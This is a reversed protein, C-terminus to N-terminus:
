TSKPLNITKLHAILERHATTNMIYIKSNSYLFIEKLTKEKLEKSITPLALFQNLLDIYPTLNGDYGFPIELAKQFFYALTEHDDKWLAIAEDSMAKCQELRSNIYLAKM